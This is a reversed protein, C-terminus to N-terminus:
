TCIKSDILTSCSLLPDHYFNLLDIIVIYLWSQKRRHILLDTLNYKKMLIFCRVSSNSM